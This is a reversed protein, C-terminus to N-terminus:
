NSIYSSYNIVTHNGTERGRVVHIFSAHLVIAIAKCVWLVKMVARASSIVVAHKAVTNKTETIFGASAASPRNSAIM